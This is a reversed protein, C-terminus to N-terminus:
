KLGRQKLVQTIKEIPAPKISSITGIEDVIATYGSQASCLVTGAPLLRKSRRNTPDYFANAGEVLPFREDILLCREARKLAIRENRTSQENSQNIAQEAQETAQLRSEEASRKLM